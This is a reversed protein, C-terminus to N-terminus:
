YITSTSGDEDTVTLGAVSHLEGMPGALSILEVRETVGNGDLDGHARFTYLVTGAAHGCSGPASEIEYQYYVPDMISFGLDVFPLDLPNPVVQKTAGPANPTTAPGVTCETLLADGVVPGVHEAGYYAAASLYLSRLNAQAEGRKSELIFNSYAMYGVGGVLCVSLLLVAGCGAGIYVRAGRKDNEDGRARTL